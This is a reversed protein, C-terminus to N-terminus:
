SKESGASIHVRVLFSDNMFHIHLLRNRRHIISYLFTLYEVAIQGNSQDLLM